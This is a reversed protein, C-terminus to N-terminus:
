GADGLAKRAAKAAERVAKPADKQSQRFVVDILAQAPRALPGLAALWRLLAARREPIETLGTRNRLVEPLLVASASGIKALTMFAQAPRPDKKNLPPRLFWALDELLFDAQPGLERATAHAAEHVLSSVDWLARALSAQNQSTLPRTALKRVHHVRTQSNGDRTPLRQMEGGISLSRLRPFNRILQETGGPHLGVAGGIEWTGTPRRRTAPPTGVHIERLTPSTATRTWPLWTFAQADPWTIRVVEVWRLAFQRLLAPLQQQTLGHRKTANIHVERVFGLHWHLEINQLDPPGETWLRPALERRLQEAEARAREADSSKQTAAHDLMVLRGLPDGDISLLDAWVLRLSTDEAWEILDRELLLRVTQPDHITM